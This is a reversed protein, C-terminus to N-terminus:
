FLFGLGFILTSVKEKEADRISYNMNFLLRTERSVPLAYGGGFTMGYGWDSNESITVTSSKGEVEYKAPGIDGRLFFGDGINTGFFRMASFSYQYQNIKVETSGYEFSESVGSMVFGIMTTHNLIPWYFGFIEVAVTTHEILPNAKLEDLEAQLEKNKYRASGFGFGWYTYWSENNSRLESDTTHIEEATVANFMSETIPTEKSLDKAFPCEATSAIFFKKEPNVRTIALSCTKEDITATLSDGKKLLSEGSSYKVAVVKKGQDVEVIAYDLAWAQSVLLGFLILFKFM